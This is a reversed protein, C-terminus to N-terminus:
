LWDPEPWGEELGTGPSLEWIQDRSLHRSRMFQGLSMEWDPNAAQISYYEFELNRWLDYLEPGELEDLFTTSDKMADGDQPQIM